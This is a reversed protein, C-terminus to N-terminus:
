WIKRYNDRTGKSVDLIGEFQHFLKIECMNILQNNPKRFHQTIMASTVRVEHRVPRFNESKTELVM